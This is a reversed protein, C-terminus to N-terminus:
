TEDDWQLTGCGILVCPQVKFGQLIQEDSTVGETSSHYPHDSLPSRWDVAESLRLKEIIESKELHTYLAFYM